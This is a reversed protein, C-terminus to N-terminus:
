TVVMTDYTFGLRHLAYRSSRIRVKM